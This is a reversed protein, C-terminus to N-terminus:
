VSRWIGDNLIQRLIEVLTMRFQRHYCTDERFGILVHWVRVFRNSLPFFRLEWELVTRAVMCIIWALSQKQAKKAEARKEKQTNSGPRQREHRADDACWTFSVKM